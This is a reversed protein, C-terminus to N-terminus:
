TLLLLTVIPINKKDPLLGYYDSHLMKPFGFQTFPVITGQIIVESYSNWDFSRHINTISHMLKTHMPHHIINGEKSVIKSRLINPQLYVNVKYGYYYPEVSISTVDRIMYDKVTESISEYEYQTSKACAFPYDLKYIKNSLLNDVLKSPSLDFILDTSSKKM